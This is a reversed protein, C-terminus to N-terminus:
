VTKKAIKGIEKSESNLSDRGSEDEMSLIDEKIESDNLGAIVVSDVYNNTLGCTCLIGFQCRSAVGKLRSM